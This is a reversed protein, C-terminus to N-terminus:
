GHEHKGHKPHVLIAGIVAVGAAVVFPANLGAVAAAGAALLPGIVRGLSAMGQFGGLVAGREHPGATDAVMTSMSPMFIAAGVAYIGMPILTLWASRLLPTVALAVALMYVGAHTLHPAGYRRTLVGIGGGQIMVSLIGIFGFIWGLTRPSFGLYAAGWISYSSHLMSVAGIVIMTAVLLQGLVPRRLLRWRPERVHHAHARRTEKGHSEPLFFLTAFFAMVSMIAAGHAVRALNDANTGALLGGLAPGIIFGFGFGAGLLGLARPRTLDDTVDTVYAYATSINGAALGAVLRSTGLQWGNSAVALLMNAAANAALTALLIPRRGVRDSAAGWLPSGVLQGLSYLGFLFIIVSPAIGLHEAYFPLIPIVMGFGVLDLFVVFLIPLLARV